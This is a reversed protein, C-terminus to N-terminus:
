RKGKKPTRAMLFEALLKEYPLDITVQHYDANCDHCTKRIAALYQNLSNKYRDQILRPELVLANGDEMDVFRHPRDFEFDIEQPHLLHFVAIDHNRYRLHQLAEAWKSTEVFLDSCIIFVARQRVKEAVTHLADILGTGGNAESDTLAKFIQQLHSARRMPPIDIQIDEDCCTLGVADGGQVTLYALTGAIKRAYDLKSEGPGPFGMSASTDVVLYLRLNTDAEFEKIYYRDSRAFARWDLRRIDDGPVYKRYEAFEISSGRHPSKHRGSVNGIMATRAHLPLASLRALVAPDLFERYTSDQEPL